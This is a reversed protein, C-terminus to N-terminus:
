YYSQGGTHGTWAPGGRWQGGCRLGQCDRDSQSLGPQLCHCICTNLGHCHHPRHLLHGSGELQWLLRQSRQFFTPVRSWSRVQWWAQCLESYQSQEPPHKVATEVPNYKQIFLFIIQAITQNWQVNFLVKLYTFLYNMLNDKKISIIIQIDHNDHYASLPNFNFTWTLAM